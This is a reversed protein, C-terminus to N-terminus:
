SGPAIKNNRDRHIFRIESQSLFHLDRSLQTNYVDITLLQTIRATSPEVHELLIPTSIPTALTRLHVARKRGIKAVSTVENCVFCTTAVCKKHMACKRTIYIELSIYTCAYTM